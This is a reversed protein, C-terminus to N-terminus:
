TIEEIMDHTHMECSELLFDRMTLGRLSSEVKFAQRFTRSVRFNLSVTESDSFTNARERAIIEKFSEM